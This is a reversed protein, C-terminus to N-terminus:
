VNCNCPRAAKDLGLADWMPAEEECLAIPCTGRLLDVVPRYLALRDAFPYRAPCGTENAPVLDEFLGDDVFRFLDPDARLTGLTVREPALARVEQTVLRHDYGRFMPDIRMRLRWGLAKLERAGRIRDAVPAAGKEFRQAAEAATVSFSVIVNDCPEVGYLPQCERWGGKTLFLLTHPRGQAEQRFVEVLRTVIPRVGEFSFSDSMTGANLMYTQLDDRHIWNRIEHVMQEINTFAEHAQLHGFSSKLYCYSCQPAFLCGAAHALVYMNPCVTRPPKPYLLRIFRSKRERLLYGAPM